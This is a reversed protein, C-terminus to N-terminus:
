HFGRAWSGDKPKHAWHILEDFSHKVAQWPPLAQVWNLWRSVFNYTWAFAKITMLKDRGIHFIREVIIIKLIEGVTFVLIGNVFHGSAVLYASFPKIPELLVLPIMLLLLTPYRGLSAVWPPIFRFLRSNAIQRVLPKLIFLALADIVFYIAAVVVVLPEFVTKLITRHKM